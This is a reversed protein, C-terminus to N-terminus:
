PVAPTTAGDPSPAPPSSPPAPPMTGDPISPPLAVRRLAHRFASAIEVGTARAAGARAVVVYDGPPLAHRERRFHDRLVRKIRNRVVARKDVKRSVALGLRAPHDAPLHHLAFLANAAARRGRNFVADFEPRARVRASRPYRATPRNSKGATMGSPDDTSPRM